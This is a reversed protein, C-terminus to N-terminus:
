DTKHASSIKCINSQQDKSVGIQLLYKQPSGYKDKIHKIVSQVLDPDCDAFNEKLGISAVEKVKEERETILGRDTLMYDYQIADVPVNLLLLLLQTILGTRDKGQTCHILVPYSSESALIDFVAKIEKGSAELTDIALGSLGRPQMVNKGLISIASLRRGIAMFFLLLFFDLWTLKSVLMRSFSSGNLNIPSHTIDQIRLPQASAETSSAIIAAHKEAQQQHETASRLDIITKIKLQGSLFQRDKLTAEDPRASRYLLGSNLLRCTLKYLQYDVYTQKTFTNVTVGVDRFNIISELCDQIETDGDQSDM